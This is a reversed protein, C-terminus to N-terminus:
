EWPSISLCSSVPWELVILRCQQHLVMTRKVANCLAKTHRLAGNCVCVNSWIKRQLTWTCIHLKNYIIRISIKRFSFPSFCCGPAYHPLTTFPLWQFANRYHCSVCLQIDIYIFRVARYAVCVCVDNLTGHCHTRRPKSWQVTLVPSGHIRIIDIELVIFHSQQLHFRIACGGGGEERSHKTRLKLTNTYQICFQRTAWQQCEYIGYWTM